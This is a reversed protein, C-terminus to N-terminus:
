RVIRRGLEALEFVADNYADLHRCVPFVVVGDAIRARVKKPKMMFDDKLADWTATAQIKEDKGKTTKDKSKGKTTDIAAGTSKIKDLFGHKTM